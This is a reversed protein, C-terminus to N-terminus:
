QNVSTATPRSSPTPTSRQMLSIVFGSGTVGSSTGRADSANCEQYFANVESDALDERRQAEGLWRRGGPSVGGAASMAPGDLSLPTGNGHEAERSLSRSGACSTLTM